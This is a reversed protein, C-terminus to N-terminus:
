RFGIEPVGSVPKLYPKIWNEPGFKGLGLGCGRRGRCDVSRLGFVVPASVPLPHGPGAAQCYCKKCSRTLSLSNGLPHELSHEDCEVYRCALFAGFFVCEFGSLAQVCCCMTRHMCLRRVVGWFYVLSNAFYSAFCLTNKPPPLMGRHRILQLGRVQCEGWRGM